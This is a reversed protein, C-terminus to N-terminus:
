CILIYNQLLNEHDIYYSAVFITMFESNQIIFRSIQTMFELFDLIQM